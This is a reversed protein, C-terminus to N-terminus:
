ICKPGLQMYGQRQQSFGRRNITRDIDGSIKYSYASFAPLSTGASRPALGCATYEVTAIITDSGVTDFTGAPLATGSPNTCSGNTCDLAVVTITGITAAPLHATTDNLIFDILARSTQFANMEEEVNSAMRVGMVGTNVSAIAIFTLAILLVFAFLLASGQQTKYNMQHM